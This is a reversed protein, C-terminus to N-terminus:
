PLTPLHRHELQNMLWDRQAVLSGKDGAALSKLHENRCDPEYLLCLSAVNAAYDANGTLAKRLIRVFERDSASSEFYASFYYIMGCDYPARYNIAQKKVRTQLDEGGALKQCSDFAKRVTAKADTESIVGANLQVVVKFFDASGETIFRGLPLSFLAEKQLKHALEHAFTAAFLRDLNELDEKEPNDFSMRVINLSDGGYGSYGGKNRVITVIVGVDKLPDFHLGDRYFAIIKGMSNQLRDRVVSPIAPDVYIDQFAPLNKEDSFFLSRGAADRAPIRALDSIWRGNWLIHKARVLIEAEDCDPNPIFYPLHVYVGNGQRAAKLYAASEHIESNLAQRFSFQGTRAMGVSSSYLAQLSALCRDDGERRDVSGVDVQM